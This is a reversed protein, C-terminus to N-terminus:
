APGKGLGRGGACKRQSAAIACSNEMKVRFHIILTNKGLPSGCTGIAPNVEAGLRKNKIIKEDISM